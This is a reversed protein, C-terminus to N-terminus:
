DEEYDEDEDEIYFSTLCEDCREYPPYNPLILGEPAEEFEELETDFLVCENDSLFPCDSSCGEEYDDGVEIHIPIKM